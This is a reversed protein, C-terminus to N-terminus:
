WEKVETKEVKKNYDRVWQQALEVSRDYVVKEEKEDKSKEKEEKVGKAAMLRFFAAPDDRAWKHMKRAGPFPAGSPNMCGLNWFVWELTEKWDIVGVRGDKEMDRPPAPWKERMAKQTELVSMGKDLCEKRFPLCAKYWLGERQLRDMFERPTEVREKVAKKVEVVKEDQVQFELQVALPANTWRV